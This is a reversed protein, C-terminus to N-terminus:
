EILRTTPYPETRGTKTFGLRQYFSIAALNISTVMLQLHPSRPPSGLIRHTLSSAVPAPAAHHAVWM